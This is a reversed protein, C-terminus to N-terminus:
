STLSEKSPIASIQRAKAPYNQYKRRPNVWSLPKIRQKQSKENHTSENKSQKM